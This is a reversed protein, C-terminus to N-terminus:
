KAPKKKKKQAMQATARLLEDNTMALEKRSALGKTPLYGIPRDDLIDPRKTKEKTM